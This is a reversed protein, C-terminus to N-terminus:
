GYPAACGNAVQGLAGCSVDTADAWTVESTGIKRGPTDGSGARLDWPVGPRVPHRRVTWEGALRGGVVGCVGGGSGWRGSGGVVEGLVWVRRLGWAAM